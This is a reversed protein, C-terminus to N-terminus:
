GASDGAHMLEQLIKWQRSSWGSCHVRSWPGVQFPVVPPIQPPRIRTNHDCLPKSCQITRGKPNDGHAADGKKQPLEEMANMFSLDRKMKQTDSGALM